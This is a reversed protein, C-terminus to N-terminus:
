QRLFSALSPNTTPTGRQLPFTRCQIPIAYKPKIMDRVAIAADQLGMISHGGIPILVVDPKYTEAILRM